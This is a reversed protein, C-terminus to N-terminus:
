TAFRKGDEGAYKAVAKDAAVAAKVSQVVEPVLKGPIACSVEGAPMGTRVRSLMCGVSVAVQGEEKAIPIIHCQPKGEFRIKPWADHLMMLQVGNLRVFVVDPDVPTERLPGYVVVKPRQNVTPVQEM